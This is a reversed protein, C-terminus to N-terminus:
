ICLRCHVHIVSLSRKGDNRCNRSSPHCHRFIYRCTFKKLFASIHKQYSILGHYWGVGKTSAFFVFIKPGVNSGTKRIRIPIWQVWDRNAFLFNTFNSYIRIWFCPKYWFIQLFFLSFKKHGLQEIIYYKKPATNGNRQHPHPDQKESQHPHLDPHQGKVKICIRTRIRRRM